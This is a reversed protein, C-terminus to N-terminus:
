FHTTNYDIRLNLLRKIPIKYEGLAILIYRYSTDMLNEKRKMDKIYDDLYYINFLNCIFIIM